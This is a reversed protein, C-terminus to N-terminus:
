RESVAISGYWRFSAGVSSEFFGPGALKTKNKIDKKWTAEGFIEVTISDM